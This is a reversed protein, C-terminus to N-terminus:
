RNFKEHARMIAKMAARRDNFNQVKTWKNKETDKYQKFFLKIKELCSLDLDSLDKIRSFNEDAENVAVCIIKEDKGKEDEMELIAVPRCVVLQSKELVQDTLIMADLADGDDALTEPIFGYNYPYSFSSGLLRDVELKGTAESIEYKVASGKPIEVMVNFEEPARDGIKLKTSEM